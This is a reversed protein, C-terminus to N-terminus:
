RAFYVKASRVQEAKTNQFELFVSFEISGSTSLIEGHAAGIRGHSIADFITVKAPNRKAFRDFLAGHESAWVLGDPSLARALKDQDATVLWIVFDEVFTNKPSNGCKGSRIIETGMGMGM